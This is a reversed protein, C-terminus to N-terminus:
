LKAAMIEIQGGKHAEQHDNPRIILHFDCLILCKVITVIQLQYIVLPEGLSFTAKSNTREVLTRKIVPNNVTTKKALSIDASVRTIIIRGEFRHKLFDFVAKQMMDTVEYGKLSPGVMVVPRMAPVVDYPPTNEPKKFFKLKNKEQKGVPLQSSAKTQTVHGDSDDGPAAAEFSLRDPTSPTSSRTMNNDMGHSAPQQFLRGTKGHSMVRLSELKSPTPIFGLEAAGEKEQVLRGIWWDNNYKEKIHLYNKVSFSLAKGPIPADDDIKGDYAVNTRVAFAVPKYKASELQNKAQVETERKLTENYIESAGSEASGCEVALDCLLGARIPGVRERSTLPDALLWVRHTFPRKKLGEF